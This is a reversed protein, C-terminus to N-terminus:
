KQTEDLELEQKARGGEYYFKVRIRSGTRYNYVTAMFYDRYTSVDYFVMESGDRYELYLDRNRIYWDFFYRGELRQYEDEREEVGTGVRSTASGNSSFTFYSYYHLGYNDHEGLDVSWTKEIMGSIDFGVEDDDKTCSSFMTATMIAMLLYYAFKKM